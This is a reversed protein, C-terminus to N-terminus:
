SISTSSRGSPTRFLFAPSEKSARPELIYALEAQTYNFKALEDEIKGLDNRHKFAIKNTEQM